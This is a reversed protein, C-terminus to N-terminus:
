YCMSGTIHHAGEMSGDTGWIGLHAGLEFGGDSCSPHHGPRYNLYTLGVGLGVGYATPKCESTSNSCDLLPSKASDHKHTYGEGNEYKGVIAVFYIADYRTSSGGDTRVMACLGAYPEYEGPGYVFVTKCTSSVTEEPTLIGTTCDYDFIQMLDVDLYPGSPAVDLGCDFSHFASPDDARVESPSSALFFAAFLLSM